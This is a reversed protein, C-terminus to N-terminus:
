FGEKQSNRFDDDGGQKTRGENESLRAIISELGLEKVLRGKIAPSMPADGQIMQSFYPRSVKCRRALVKKKIGKVAIAGNVTALFKENNMKGAGKQRIHTHRM